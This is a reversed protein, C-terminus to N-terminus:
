AKVFSGGAVRAIRGAVELEALEALLVATPRGTRASLDDVTYSEGAAMTEELESTQLSKNPSAASARAPTWGIEELVDAVSDVIRAGDRILAHCGRSRGSLVGGPVALVDRGQDLASRATILSGSQDSAEIVVVARSLGSIVRNRLPFHHKRPPAGPAFETVIAGTDVIRAALLDHEPPYVRDAGCGLVAITRGGADLAGLHAEGDAGRAMGSVVVLGARALDHGLQRAVQLGAPSAARAGVVAVQPAALTSPDGKVWLVIPPDIIQRLLEPYHEHSGDIITLGLRDASALARAAWKEAESIRRRAEEPFWGLRGLIEELFTRDAADGGLEKVLREVKTDVSNGLFSAAVLTRLRSSHM